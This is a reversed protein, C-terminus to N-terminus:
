GFVKTHEDIFWVLDRQLEMTTVSITFALDLSMDSLTARKRTELTSVEKM